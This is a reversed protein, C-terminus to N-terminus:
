AAKAKRAIYAKGAKLAAGETGYRKGYHFPQGNKMVCFRFTGTGEVEQSRVEFM